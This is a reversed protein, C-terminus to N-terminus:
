KSPAPNLAPGGTRGDTTKELVVPKDKLVELRNEDFWSTPCVGEKTAAQALIYQDCGTLYQARGTVIGTFGTIKDKAKSGLTIM